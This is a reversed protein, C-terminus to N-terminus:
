SGKYRCSPRHRDATGSDRRVRVVQSHFASHSLHQWRILPPRSLEIRLNADPRMRLWPRCTVLEVGLQQCIAIPAVDNVLVPLPGPLCDARVEIRMPIRQLDRDLVPLMVQVDTCDHASRVREVDSTHVDDTLSVPVLAACHDGVLVQVHVMM